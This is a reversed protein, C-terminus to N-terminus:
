TESKLYVDLNMQQVFFDLKKLKILVLKSHIRPLNLSEEYYFIASFDLMFYKQM